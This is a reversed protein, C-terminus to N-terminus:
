EEVVELAGFVVSAKINLHQESERYAATKYVHEGFTVLAGDPTRAQGFASHLDIKAPVKPDVLLQGHAFIVNTEIDGTQAGLPSLDITGKGFIINYEGDAQTIPIRRDEFLVMNHLIPWGSGGVLLSIGMYILVLALTIRFIPISINLVTKLIALAGIIILLVGWFASGFFFAKM